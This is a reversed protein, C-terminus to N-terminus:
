KTGQVFFVAMIRYSFLCKSCEVELAGSHATWHLPTFKNDQDVENISAGAKVMAIAEEVNGGKVADHISSSKPKQPALILICVLTKDNLPCFNLSKADIVM